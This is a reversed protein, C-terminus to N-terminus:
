ADPRSVVVITVDNGDSACCLLLRRLLHSTHRWKRRYKVDVTSLVPLTWWRHSDGSEVQDSSHENTLTM